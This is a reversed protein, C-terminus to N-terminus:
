GDELLGLSGHTKLGAVEALFFGMFGNVKVTMTEEMLCNYKEKGNGSV